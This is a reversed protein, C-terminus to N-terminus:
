PESTMDEADTRRTPYRDLSAQGSLGSTARDAQRACDKERNDDYQQTLTHHLRKVEENQRFAELMAPQSMSGLIRFLRAFDLRFRETM